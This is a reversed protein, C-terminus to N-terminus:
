NPDHLERLGYFMQASDIPAIYFDLQQAADPLFKLPYWICNPDHLEHLGCFIRASDISVIYFDVKQDACLLMMEISNM